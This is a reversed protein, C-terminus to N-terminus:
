RYSTYLSLSPLRSTYDMDFWVFHGQSLINEIAKEVLQEFSARSPISDKFLDNYITIIEEGLLGWDKYRETFWEEQLPVLLSGVIRREEVSYGRAPFPTNEDDLNGLNLELTQLQTKAKKIQKRTKIIENILDLNSKLRAVAEDSFKFHLESVAQEFPLQNRSFKESIKGTSANIQKPHFAILPFLLVFWKIYFTLTDQKKM